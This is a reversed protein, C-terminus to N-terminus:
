GLVDIIKAVLESKKSPKVVYGEPKLETLTEIVTKKETVGTLFIIPLDKIDEDARITKLVAPGDMGPMLYDLLILDAEKKSLFKLAADGSKVVSVDYFECLMDKIHMLQQTDDDVVLIRKKKPGEDANPNEFEEMFSSGSKKKEELEKEIYILKEYVTFLSVPRSLFYVKKLGTYKMFLQKDDESAVVFVSMGGAKVAETLINYMRVDMSTENSMCIIVVNPMESYIIDFIAERDPRCKVTTYGRDDECHESIDKAIRRNKGTVLIKLKESM